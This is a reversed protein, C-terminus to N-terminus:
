HIVPVFVTSKQHIKLPDGSCFWSLRISRTVGPPAGRGYAADPPHGDPPHGPRLGHQPHAASPRPVHHSLPSLHSARAPRRPPAFCPSLTYYPPWHISSIILILRNLWNNLLRVIVDATNKIQNKWIRYIKEGAASKLSNHKLFISSFKYLCQDLLM